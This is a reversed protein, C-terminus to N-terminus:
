GMTLRDRTLRGPPRSPRGPVASTDMRGPGALTKAGVCPSNGTTTCSRGAEPHRHRGRWANGAVRVPSEARGFCSRAGRRSPSPHRSATVPSTCGHTVKGTKEVRQLGAVRRGGCLEQGQDVVVEAPQG